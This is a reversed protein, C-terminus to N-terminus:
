KDIIKNELGFEKLRSRQVITVLCDCEPYKSCGWFEDGQYIGSSSIRKKMVNKCKPCLCFNCSMTAFYERPSVFETKINLDCIDQMKYYIINYIASPESNLQKAIDDVSMFKNEQIIEYIQKQTIEKM